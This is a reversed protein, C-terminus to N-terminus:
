NFNSAYALSDDIEGLSFSTKFRWTTGDLDSIKMCVTLNRIEDTVEFYHGEYAFVDYISGYMPAINIAEGQSIFAKEQHIAWTNNRTGLTYEKKNKKDYAYLSISKIVLSRKGANRIIIFHTNMVDDWVMFAELKKIKEIWISSWLSIFIAALSLVTPAIIEAFDWFDRQVINVLSSQQFISYLIGMYIM